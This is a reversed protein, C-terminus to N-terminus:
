MSAKFRARWCSTGLTQSSRPRRVRFPSLRVRFPPRPRRPARIRPNPGGWIACRPQRVQDAHGPSRADTSDYARDYTFRRKFFQEDHVESGSDRLESLAPDVLMIDCGENFQVVPTAHRRRESASLPRARVATLVPPVHSLDVGGAEVPEASESM